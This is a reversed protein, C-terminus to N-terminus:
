KVIAFQLYETLDFSGGLCGIGGYNLNFETMQFQSIKHTILDGKKANISQMCQKLLQQIASFQDETQM